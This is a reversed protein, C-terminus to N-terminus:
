VFLRLSCHGFRGLRRLRLGQTKTREILASAYWATLRVSREIAIRVRHWGLIVQGSSCMPSGIGLSYLEDGFEEKERVVKGKSIWRLAV